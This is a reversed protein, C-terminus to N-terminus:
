VTSGAELTKQLSDLLNQPGLIQELEDLKQDFDYYGTSGTFQKLVDKFQKLADEVKKQTDGLSGVIAKANDTTAQLAALADSTVKVLVAQKKSIDAFAAEAKEKLNKVVGSFTDPLEALTDSTVTAESLKRRMDEREAELRLIEADRSAIEAELRRRTAEREELGDEDEGADGEAARKRKERGMAELAEEHFRVFPEADTPHKAFWRSDVRAKTADHKEATYVVGGPISPSPRVTTVRRFIGPPEKANPPVVAEPRPFGEERAVVVTDFWGNPSFPVDAFIADPAQSQIPFSQPDPDARWADEEDSSDEDECGSSGEGDYAPAAPSPARAVVEVVSGVDIVPSAPSSAKRSKRRPTVKQPVCVADTEFLAKKHCIACHRPEPIGLAVCTECVECGRRQLRCKECRSPRRIGKKKSSSTSPAKKPM